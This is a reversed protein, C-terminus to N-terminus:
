VASMAPIVFAVPHHTGATYNECADAPFLKSANMKNAAEATSINTSVAYIMLLDYISIM